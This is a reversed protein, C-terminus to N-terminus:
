NTGMANFAARSRILKLLPDGNDDTPEQEDDDGDIDVPGSAAGHIMPEGNDAGYDPRVLRLAKVMDSRHWWSQGNLALAPKAGIKDLASDLAEYPVQFRGAFFGTTVLNLENM